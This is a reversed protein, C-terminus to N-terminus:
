TAPPFKAAPEKRKFDAERNVYVFVYFVAVALLGLPVPLVQAAIVASSATPGLPAHLSSIVSLFIAWPIDAILAFGMATVAVAWGGLRGGRSCLMACAPVTLLLLTADGQRHYVPLLSLVGIAAIGVALGLATIRRRLTAVIWAVLPIGCILYSAPNYFHPDDRFYSLASQLSIIMGVGHAGGSLPSPNSIGGPATFVALNSSLGHLWHPAVLAVWGFMPIALAFFAGLTQLARKRHVGGALLFYLWILGSDQPKLALSLALCAIGAVAYREKVFCWVAVICLSIAIASANGDIVQLESNALFFCVLLGALAPAYDAGLDWMLFAALPIGLLILLLWLLHAPGYPLLAFPATCAFASPFYVFLTLVLRDRPNAPGQGGQEAEYIRLVESQSYPDGHHLLCRASYYMPKFDILPSSSISELALGLAVFIVAGLFFLYLGDRRAKNM